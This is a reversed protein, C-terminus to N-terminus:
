KTPDETKQIKLSQLEKGLEQNKKRLSYITLKDTARLQNLRTIEDNYTQAVVNMQEQTYTIQQEM